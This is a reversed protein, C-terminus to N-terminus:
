GGRRSRSSSRARLALAPSPYAAERQMTRYLAIYRRASAAWGFDRAMANRQLRQWLSPRRWAAVARRVAAVLAHPNAAEFVFGTATGAELSRPTYDVVSDALGGTRRVVPLTGYRQSYMQNLGCPEFRSPMLFIDAGAEILHSLPEDFGRIVAIKGPNRAAVDALAREMPADGTGLVILQAPLAVLADAAQVVLDLGKQAVLRSVVGLLPQEAQPQLGFRERLACTNQAKRALTEADYTTSLCPDTAPNWVDLDIGNLIGELEASRAALLGHLGFGLPESQIERAYTPSVTSIRRAYYLGAKLFSVKGHFELGNIDLSQAPLGLSPLVEPPFIGQFALNHITVLSPTEANDANDWWHLYAPALASQWDNCHVLDCRWECSSRASALWAAVYSLLGFRLANDPWDLGQPSLYPGGEREYLEPCALILLPVGNPHEAALLRAPPFGASPPVEALARASVAGLVERYGPLLVQVDIGLRRLAAPLASAVDGLGGTKTLPACESAAFLVRLSVPV